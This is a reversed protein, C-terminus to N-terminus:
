KVIEAKDGKILIDAVDKDLIVNQGKKFPGVSDGVMGIFHEVDEKILVELDNDLGKNNILDSVSIDANNIALILREFLDKEFLLMDTFDKKMLGTEAAVFVLNLIKKKRRLILEKFITMSNEYEKKDKVLDDAFFDGNREIGKRKQNIYECFQKLFDSPLGQLNDDYKEKRLFEYLDEYTIM